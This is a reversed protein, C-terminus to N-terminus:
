LITTSYLPISEEDLPKRPAPESHCHKLLVAPVVSQKELTPEFHMAKIVGIPLAGVCQAKASRSRM